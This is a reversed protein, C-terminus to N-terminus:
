GETAAAARRLHGFTLPIPKDGQWGISDEDLDDETTEGLASEIEYKVIPEYADIKERMRANEAELATIRNALPRYHDRIATIVEEYGDRAAQSWGSEDETERNGDDFAICLVIALNDGRM